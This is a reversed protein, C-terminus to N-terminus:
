INPYKDQAEGDSLDEEDVEISLLEEEDTQDETAIYPCKQEIEFNLCCKLRGCMGSLRNPNMGLDLSKATKVSVSKMQRLFRSSCSEPAGCCGMGGILKAEDRAGIQRMEIRTRLERALDKVLERFDIRRNATFYFVVRSGDFVYEVGSLKMPLKRARIRKRCLRYASEEKDKKKEHLYLDRETAKRLVKPLKGDDSSGDVSRGDLVIAVEVGRETTVLCRDGVRFGDEATFCVCPVPSHDLKVTLIEAM